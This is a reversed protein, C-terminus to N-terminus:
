GNSDERERRELERRVLVRAAHECGRHAVVNVPVSAPYGAVDVAVIVADAPPVFQACALCIYATMTDM